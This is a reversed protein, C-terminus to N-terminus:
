TPVIENLFEYMTLTPEVGVKSFAVLAAPPGSTRMKMISEQDAWVTVIQITGSNQKKLLYSSLLGEPKPGRKMEEFNQELEVRKEPSVNGEVVTMMKM